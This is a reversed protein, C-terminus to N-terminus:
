DVDHGSDRKMIFHKCPIIIAIKALTDLFTEVEALSIYDRLFPNLIGWLSKLAVQDTRHHCILYAFLLVERTKYRGTETYLLENRFFSNAPTGETNVRKM